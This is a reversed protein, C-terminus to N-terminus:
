DLKAGSTKTVEAWRKMESNLFKAFEQPTMTTVESGNSTWIEKLEPSNLAKVV